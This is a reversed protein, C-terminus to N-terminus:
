RKKNRPGSLITNKIDVMTYRPLGVYGLIEYIWPYGKNLKKSDYACHLPYILKKGLIRRNTVIYHFGPLRKFDEELVFGQFILEKFIYKDETEYKRYHDEYNLYHIYKKYNRKAWRLCKEIPKKTISKYKLALGKVNPYLDSKM